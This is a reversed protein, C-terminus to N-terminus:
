GDPRDKKSEEGAADGAAEPDLSFDTAYNTKMVLMFREHFQLTHAHALREAGAVDRAAVADVMERHQDTLLYERQTQTLYEFHLHLLRRGEDLLESYQRILFPNRGAAAIAMHFAKNSASMELHDYRKVSEEFQEVCRRMEALDADSRHQAALRTNIRQLLDLAEIYRPFNMLDIPAVLTSHNPLMVVLHQASLRHLAERVPSRSLGFRRAIQTEDLPTGPKLTLTLIERHLVEHVIKAGNGRLPRNAEEQIPPM